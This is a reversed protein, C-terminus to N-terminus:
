RGWSPTTTWGAATGSACGGGGRGGRDPGRRLQLDRPEGQRLAAARGARDRLGRLGGAATAIKLTGPYTRPGADIVALTEPVRIEAQGLLSACLWKDETMGQCTMDCCARTIPWHLNNTVFRM